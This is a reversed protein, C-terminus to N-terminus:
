NNVITSANKGDSISIIIQGNTLAADYADYDVKTDLTYETLTIYNALQAASITYTFAGNGDPTWTINHLATDVTILNTGDYKWDANSLSFAFTSPVGNEKVEVPAYTNPTFTVVLNGSIKLATTHTTGEKPDVTLSLGSTDVHYTGYTGTFTAETMSIAKAGTIDAVDDSQSYVWTAYVGGITICLVLAILISLRKM